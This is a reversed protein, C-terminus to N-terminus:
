RQILCIAGAARGMVEGGARLIEGNSVMGNTPDYIFESFRAPNLINESQRYTGGNGGKSRVRDPGHSFLVYFFVKM